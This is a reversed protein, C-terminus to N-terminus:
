VSLLGESCYHAIVKLHIFNVTITCHLVRQSPDMFYMICYKSLISVSIMNYIIYPEIFKHTYIHIIYINKTFEEM